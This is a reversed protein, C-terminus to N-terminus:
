LDGIPCLETLLGFRLTAAGTHQEKPPDDLLRALCLLEPKGSFGIMFTEGSKVRALNTIGLFVVNDAQRLLTGFLTRSDKLRRVRAFRVNNPSVTM